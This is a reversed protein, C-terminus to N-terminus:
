RLLKRPNASRPDPQRKLSRANRRGKGFADGV